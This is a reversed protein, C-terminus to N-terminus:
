SCLQCTENKFEKSDSRQRVTVKRVEINSDKLTRVNDTGQTTFTLDDRLGDRVAILLTWLIADAM